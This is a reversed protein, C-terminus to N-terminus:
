GTVTVFRAGAEVLRRALLASMGVKNRGYADKTKDSEKSLDFAAKVTPALLMSFAQDMFDDRAAFEALKEKRRYMREVVKLFSRRDNIEEVSLSQPLTLDPLEFKKKSPDSLFIPDYRPDMFGSLYSEKYADFIGAGEFPLPVVLNPPLKTRPGLE